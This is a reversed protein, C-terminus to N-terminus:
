KRKARLKQKLKAVEDLADRRQDSAQSYQRRLEDGRKQEDKFLKLLQRNEAEAVEARLEASIQKALAISIRTGKGNTGYEFPICWLGVSEEPPPDLPRRYDLRSSFEEETLVKM